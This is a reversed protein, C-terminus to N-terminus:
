TMTLFESIWLYVVSLILGTNSPHSFCQILCKSNASISEWLVQQSFKYHQYAAGDNEGVPILLLVVNNWPFSSITPWYSPTINYVGVVSNSESLNQKTMSVCQWQIVRHEFVGTNVCRVEWHQSVASSTLAWFGLQGQWPLLAFDAKAM